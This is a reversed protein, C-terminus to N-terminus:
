TFAQGTSLKRDFSGLAGERSIQAYHRNQPLLFASFGLSLVGAGRVKVVASVDPICLHFTSNRNHCKLERAFNRKNLAAHLM